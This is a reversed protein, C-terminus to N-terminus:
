GRNSRAGQLRPEETRWPLRRLSAAALVLILVSAPEPTPAPASLAGPTPYNDRWITYDAADVVNDGNGDASWVGTNGFQTRWLQYDATDVDGDSDYDGPGGSPTITEWGIDRLFALDLATLHKRTGNTLSPDMVAEQPAGDTIRTSMKGSAIHDGASVILGAGGGNLAAAEDGLWTTGSVLAEWSDSGGIGLAHVIEHLAVSYLDIKGAAVPTTHNWHWYNDLVAQSDRMSNDNSDWDFWAAGYAIGYDVNLNYTQNNNTDTISGIAGITPGGGRSLAAESANAAQTLASQVTSPPFGGTWSAVLGIGAGQATGVTSGFLNRGGVFITVEDAPVIPDITQTAGSQPNPYSFDWSINAEVGGSSGLYTDETIAALNTTIADSIDSAAAEIAARATANTAFFTDHRYDIEVNIARAPLAALVTVGAALLLPLIRLM